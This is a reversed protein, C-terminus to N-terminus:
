ESIENNANNLLFDKANKIGNEIIVQRKNKKKMIEFLKMIDMSRNIITIQNKIKKTNKRQNFFVIKRLINMAYQLVNTFELTNVDDTISNLGFINEENDYKEICKNLPYHLNIGGDIFITGNIKNPKFIIPIASSCYFVDILKVDPHSIYNFDTTEINEYNVCFFHIEKGSYEYFEKLTVTEIDLNVFIFFSKLLQYIIDKSLVGSEKYINVINEFSFKKDSFKISVNLYYEIITEWSINLAILISILGGVSTCWMSEIEEMVLYKQEFLEKVVGMMILGKWSGGSFVLHKITM